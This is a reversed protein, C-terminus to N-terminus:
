ASLPLPLAQPLLPGGVVESGGGPLPRPRPRPRPRPHPRPPHRDGVRVSGPTGDMAGQSLLIDYKSSRHTQPNEKARCHGLVQAM